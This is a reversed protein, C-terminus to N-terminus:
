RCDEIVRTVEPWSPVYLGPLGSVEIAFRGKSFAMADLLPDRAPIRAVINPPGGPAPMAAISREQTETRVLMSSAPVSGPRSIEVVGAAHDCTLTLLPESGPVGFRAVGGVYRWDGPTVPADMWHGGFPPSVQVAPSPAPAPISPPAPAPSPAPAPEPAPVCGALALALLVSGPEIRSATTRLRRIPM